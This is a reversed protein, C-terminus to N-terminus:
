KKEGFFIKGLAKALFFHENPISIYEALGVSVLRLYSFCDVCDSFIVTVENM